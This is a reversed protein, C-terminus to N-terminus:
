RISARIRSLSVQTIGLYSAIHKLPIRKILDPNERILQLYREEATHFQITEIRNVTDVYAMETIKRFLRELDHYIDYQAFLREAPIGIFVTDEVAQIAKNSPMGTFLSEARVIIDHEFAFYETVENGAKYYYIRALGQKVFYITRCTVGVPQLDQGKKVSILSCLDILASESEEALPNIQSLVDLLSNIQPKDAM